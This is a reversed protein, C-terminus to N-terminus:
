ILIEAEKRLRYESKPLLIISNKDGSLFFLGFFSGTSWFSVKNQGFSFKKQGSHVVKQL